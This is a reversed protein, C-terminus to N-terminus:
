PMMGRHAAYPNFFLVKQVRGNTADDKRRVGGPARVFQAESFPARDAGLMLALLKFDAIDKGKVYFWGHLSKGGSDLVMSLPFTCSLWWLRWAQIDKTSAKDFEV